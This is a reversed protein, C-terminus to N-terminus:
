ILLYKQVITQCSPGLLMSSMAIVDSSLFELVNIPSDNGGPKALHALARPSRRATRFYSSEFCLGKSLFFACQENTVSAHTGMSPPYLRM